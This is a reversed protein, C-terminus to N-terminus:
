RKTAVIMGLAIFMTRGSADLGIASRRIITAGSLTAGWTKEEFEGVVSRNQRQGTVFDEYSFTEGRLTISTPQPPPM